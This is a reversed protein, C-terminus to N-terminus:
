GDCEQADTPLERRCVPCTNRVQLWPLICERHYCHSCPLKKVEAADLTFEEKCVACATDESPVVSPLTEIVLRATPKETRSFSDHQGSLVEYESAYVLEDNVALLVEWDVNEVLERDPDQDHGVMMSLVDLRSTVEEWEFEEDRHDDDGGYSEGHFAPVPVNYGDDEADSDFGFALGLHLPEPSSPFTVPSFLDHDFPLFSDLASPHSNEYSYEDDSLSSFLLLDVVEAM